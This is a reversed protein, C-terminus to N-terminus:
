ARVNMRNLYESDAFSISALRNQAAVIDELSTLALVEAKKTYFVLIKNLRESREVRPVISTSLREMNYM